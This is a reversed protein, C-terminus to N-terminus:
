GTQMPILRVGGTAPRSSVAGLKDMDSDHDGNFLHTYISDTTNINAHGMWRSVKRIHSQQRNLQSTKNPTEPRM